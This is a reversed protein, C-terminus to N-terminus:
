TKDTKLRELEERVIRLCTTLLSGMNDLTEPTDSKSYIHLLEQSMELNVELRDLPKWIRARDEEIRMRSRFRVVECDECKDSM